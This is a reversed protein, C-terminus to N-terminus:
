RVLIDPRVFEAGQIRIKKLPWVESPTIPRPGQETILFTDMGCAAGARPSWTVAWSARFLEETQMAIALEVPLRGTVHGQPALLWEHEYNSIQYIRRGAILVERPVADPWTSALYSAGVRCVTNHDQQFLPTPEGFCVSRSASAVLGYKRGCVTLVVSQNVPTPTFAFQKYLRSREDAAVGIYIPQVGRNLLRHSLQGAVERETEGRNFNRCTAELAHSITQGLARYCAQEYPTLARRFQALQEAVLSAGCRSTDCAVKRNQCLDALFQERGWHWPWEKLWFGLGDIEEDFLRQTDTNSSILWRQDASCYIAPEAEPDLVARSTAGSSFWAVNEPRFLLVGECGVERLLQALRAGKGDIDERRDAVPDNASAVPEVPVQLLHETTV